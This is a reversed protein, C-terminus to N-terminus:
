IRCVYVSYVICMCLSLARYAKKIKVVNMWDDNVDDDEEMEPDSFPQLVKIDRTKVSQEYKYASMQYTRKWGCPMENSEIEEWTIIEMATNYATDTQAMMLLLVLSTGYYTVKNTSLSRWALSSATTLLLGAEKFYIFPKFQYRNVTFNCFLFNM